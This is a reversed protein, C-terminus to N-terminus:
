RMGSARTDRHMICASFFFYLSFENSCHTCNFVYLPDQTRPDRPLPQCKKGVVKMPFCVKAFKKFAAITDRFLQFDLTDPFHEIDRQMLEAM